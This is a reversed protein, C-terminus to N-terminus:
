SQEEDQGDRERILDLIKTLAEISLTMTEDCVRDAAERPTETEM